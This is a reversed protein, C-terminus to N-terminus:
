QNAGRNEPRDGGAPLFRGTLVSGNRPRTLEKDKEEQTVQQWVLVPFGSNISHDEKAKVSYMDPVAVLCVILITLLPIGLTLILNQKDNFFIHFYRDILVFAQRFFSPKKNM